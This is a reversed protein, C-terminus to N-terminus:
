YAKQIVATGFNQIDTTANGRYKINGTGYTTVKMKSEVYLDIHGTGKAEVEADQVKLDYARLSGSGSLSAKLKGCEGMVNLSGSGTQNITLKEGNVAINISGSGRSELRLNEVNFRGTGTIDGSGVSGLATLETVMLTATLRGTKRSGDELEIILRGKEVRTIVKPLVTEKGKINLAISEGQEIALSINDKLLVETFGEVPRNESIVNEKKQKQAFASSTLIIACTLILYRM